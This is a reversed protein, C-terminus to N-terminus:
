PNSINDLDDMWELERKIHEIAKILDKRKDFKRNCRLIKAVAEGLAHSKIDWCNLIDTVDADKNIKDNVFICKYYSTRYSQEGLPVITSDPNESSPKKKMKM